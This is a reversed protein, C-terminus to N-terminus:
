GMHRFVALAIGALVIGIAIVIHFNFSLSEPQDLRERNPDRDKAMHRREFGQTIRPAGFSKHVM